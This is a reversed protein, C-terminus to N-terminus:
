RVVTRDLDATLRGKLGHPGSQGFKGECNVNRAQILGHLGGHGFSHLPAKALDLFENLTLRLQMCASRDSRCGVRSKPVRELTIHGAYTGRHVAFRQSVDPPQSYAFASTLASTRSNRRTRPDGLIL